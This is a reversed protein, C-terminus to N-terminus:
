FTLDVGFVFTKSYAYGVGSGSNYTSTTNTLEPDITKNHKKLKSWYFLNEGAAYVRLRDFVKSNTKLNYGVTLNKLRLYSVNQMYRDTNVGLAGASYSQYGRQRPFYANQNSETWGNSLFDKHIFSLSPFSYPGWFDYALSAPAWDQKAVGQFFVSVDFGNWNAGLRFNYSYRPLSNGIIRKDGSDLVTGSGENIIGDNNLDKFEVDGARLYNDTKSIYVRNNVAKDNIAAQYAAAAADTAFLGNVKYGWIDGFTMGEYYDSILKDPNNYKTITTKYDGLGVTVNYKFPQSNLNFSDNWTASFEWGNTRLDAANALPTNAGYVAPLTLSQTLMDTTNRRYVDATVNLRSKLFSLDLGLNYTTVTEWTLSSSIPNSVSSYNARQNGDFTYGMINSTNIEEIYSYYGVQQNGLSGVSFRFKGSDWVNKLSSLFQEESFRWGLSASPFFGWRESPAFRSTGDARGSVEALYKGKYDYNVRTFFGLTRFANINQTITAAGTATNFGDLNDSLLDRKDVSLRVDRYDEYQGGVVARFNHNNNLTKSYTGYVNLNHNNLSYDVEKYANYITGSTFTQINNVERSYNFPMNRHKNLRDTTKYAYSGTLVLDKTINADLQNSLVLFRNGRSNRATNATLFGGHGAGLPSNANLQNVYQVVTGDTNRPLFSSSINSQLSHITQQENEFGAYKYESKMYSASGTYRLWPKIESNINARFSTSKLQDDYINFMGDQSLGRASAYYKTSENGGRLSVSHDQYPRNNNFFYNYWDFNGYYYYKNDSGVVTWPRDQHETKDNRRDYLMQMEEDSYTLMDVNNYSKYFKNITNVHDFGTTIFDTSTTNKAIGYRGNYTIEGKGSNNKGKKTTILVVGSSAKAGYIAAASADKLVTVSEIDNPNIQNLSVEIGDAMILPNGGNVSAVGRIDIKYDSDLVGTGFTLNLSPDAGQLAGAATTVVRNKIDKEDIIGVAATLNGKKQVGYGVVVIEELNAQDEELVVNLFNNNRVAIEQNKFGTYTIILLANESVNKLTFNGNLDTMTSLSANKVKIAAGPLPEGKEDVVKGSVDIGQFATHISKMLAKEKIIVAGDELLYSFPQDRFCLDLVDKLEANQVNISVPNATKLLNLNYIFDYGSQNRIEKIIVDLTAKQKNLTIKQAFSKASVQFLMTTLLIIIVKMVLLTKYLAHLKKGRVMDPKLNM